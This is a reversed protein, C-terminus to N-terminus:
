GCGCWCSRAGPPPKVAAGTWARVGKLYRVGEKFGVPDVRVRRQLEARYPVTMLGVFPDYVLDGLTRGPRM